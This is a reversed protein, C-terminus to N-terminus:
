CDPNASPRKHREWDGRRWDSDERTSQKQAQRLVVDTQQAQQQYIAQMREIAAQRFFESRSAFDLSAAADIKELLGAPLSINIVKVKDTAM